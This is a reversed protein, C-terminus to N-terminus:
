VADASVIAQPTQGRRRPMRLLPRVALVTFLLMMPGIGLLMGWIYGGAFDSLGIGILGVMPGLAFGGGILGEHAGGAHVSADKVVMAYYLAAYYTLGVMAGFLVEGALVLLLSDGFLVCCFGLPLGVLVAVLPAVRGHWAAAYGLVAFAVLRVVDLLAAGNTAQAVTLGLDEFIRPMLPALLFLLAYSSLMMWRSSALLAHYRSIETAPLREPHDIALHIPRFPLPRMIALTIVNLAAAAAFLMWPNASAIIPGSVAVALPVPAAWAVNFRGLARLTDRPLRGAGVYSEVIPWKMGIVFGVLPFAGVLVWEIPLLTMVLHLALVAVISLALARREGLWFAVRHSLLAGAVYTIGFALAIWLNAADSFGLLQHTYFYFGRELLVTALSEIFTIILLRRM